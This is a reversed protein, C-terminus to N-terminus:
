ILRRRKTRIRSINPRIPIRWFVELSGVKVILKRGMFRNEM